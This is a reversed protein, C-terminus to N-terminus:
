FSTSWAIRDPTLEAGVKKTLPRGSAPAGGRVANSEISQLSSARSDGPSPRAGVGRGGGASVGVGQGGASHGRDRGHPTAVVDNVGDYCFVVGPVRGAQRELMLSILNQTSVFGLEGYNTVRVRRGSEDLLRSVCSPITNEDRAGNGWLTSGGFGFIDIPRDGPAERNSTRRRGAADVNIYRGTFPRRRWLVYPHWQM